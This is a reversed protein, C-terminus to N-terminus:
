AGALKSEIWDHIVRDLVQLPIAGHQLVQEHFERLDFADGLRNMAEQRLEVIKFYGYNYGCAQGPASEFRLMAGLGQRQGLAGEIYAAAEDWSWGLGNIGTDAVLRVARVLELRLRWLNGLPDDDYLGMEYALHEAYLAWGESFAQFPPHQVYVSGLPLKQLTPIDAELALAFQLHHGPITEHHMLVADDYATGLAANALSTVLVGPGSGDLPPNEYYAPPAGPDIRIALQTTPITAFFEPLVDQADAILQKYRALLDAGELYEGHAQQIRSYLESMTLGSPWGLDREAASRLENQIRAVEKLGLEHLESISVDDTLYHHLLEDYYAEGNTYRGVGLDNGAGELALSLHTRLDQLAPIFVERIVEEAETLLAEQEAPPVSSTSLREVFTTYITLESPHSVGNVELLLSDGIDQITMQLLDAPPLIGFGERTALAAILQGMWPGFARLRDVYDEADEVSKIPLQDLLDVVRSQVGFGYPGICLDWFQFDHSRIRDELWWEFTDYEVQEDRTLSSRDYSHLGDRLSLELDRTGATYEPSLDTWSSFSELGFTPALNNYWLGDPDRLLLQQYADDIFARLPLGQGADARLSVAAPAGSSGSAGDAQGAAPLAAWVLLGLLLTAGLVRQRLSGKKM